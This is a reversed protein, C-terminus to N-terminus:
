DVRMQPQRLHFQQATDGLAPDGFRDARRGYREVMGQPQEIRAANHGGNQVRQGIVCALPEVAKDGPDVM